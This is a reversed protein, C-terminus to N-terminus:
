ELQQQRRLLEVRAGDRRQQECAVPPALAQEAGGVAVDRRQLGREPARHRDAAHEAGALDSRHALAIQQMAVRRADRDNALPLFRFSCGAATTPYTPSPM